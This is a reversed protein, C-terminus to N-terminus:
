GIEWRGFRYLEPDNSKYVLEGEWWQRELEESNWVWRIPLAGKHHLGHCGTTGSGCLAILAPRLLRGHFNLTRKGGVGKHPQHHCNTAPRGCSHCLAEPLLEYTDRLNSTYRCGLHPMGMCSASEYSMGGLLKRDPTYSM